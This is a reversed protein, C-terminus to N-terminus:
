LASELNRPCFIKNNPKTVHGGRPSLILTLLTLVGSAKNDNVKENESTEIKSLIDEWVGLVQGHREREHNHM